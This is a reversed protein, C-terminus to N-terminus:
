KKQPKMAEEREKLSKLYDGFAIQVFDPATILVAKFDASTVDIKAADCLSAAQVAVARDHKALLAILADPKNSAQALLKRATERPSSYKGDSDADLWVPNTSGVVRPTWKKSTPQYPRPIAWAPSTVGPGTAIAVLHTDQGPRPLTWIVKAKQVAKTAEISQEKVKVGNAFLEVHDANIWSPGLVTVSVSIQEGLGTALDGPAFRENVRLDALLGMSAAVRGERFSKCAQAIDIQGPKSDDCVVYTRGQGLIFRNVDHSDSSGIGATRFGHNLLAFWDRYQLETDSQLAASTVVEVADFAFDEIRYHEGSLPNLNQPGFPTFNTHMDRPHNLTIVQVGPTGRMSQLLVSWDEIKADPPKSEATVPFINFHGVKTTVENGIVTTFHSQMGTRAQPVSYDAHHNHETSIALEIGEGAITLMREDVTADGHGSHTLTHIHTDCAILGPTPVEREIQLEVTKSEGAAVSIAQTPMSYEFGRTAYVAYEGPPVGLTTIGDRTYAV